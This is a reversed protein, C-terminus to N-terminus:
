ALNWRGGFGNNDFQPGSESGINEYLCSRSRFDLDAYAIAHGVTDVEVNFLVAGIIGHM